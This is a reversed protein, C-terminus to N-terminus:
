SNDFTGHRGDGSSFRGAGSIGEAELVHRSNHWEQTLADRLSLGHQKRVSRRDARACLQPFSAIQHALEEAKQRSHGEPVVYECLGLRECEEAM